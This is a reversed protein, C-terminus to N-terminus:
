SFLWMLLAIGAILMFFEAADWFGDSPRERM